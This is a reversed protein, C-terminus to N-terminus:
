KKHMGFNWNWNDFFRKHDKKSKDDDKDKKDETPKQAVKSTTIVSATMTTGDASLVGEVKVDGNLVVVNALTTTAKNALYFTTSATTIVTISKNDKVKLVFSNNATNVSEIKGSKQFISIRSTINHIKSATLTLASNFGTFIGSINIIDGVKINSVSSVNTSGKAGGQTNVTTSATTKIVASTTANKFAIVSTITDGSVSIVQASTININGNQHVQLSPMNLAYTSVPVVLLALSLMLTRSIRNSINTKM